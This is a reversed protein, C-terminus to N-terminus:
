VWKPNFQPVDFYWEKMQDKDTIAKWVKEVPSYFTREIVFPENKM